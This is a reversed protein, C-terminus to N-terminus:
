AKKCAKYVLNPRNNAQFKYIIRDSISRINAVTCELEKSIESDYFGNAILELVHQQRETLTIKKM